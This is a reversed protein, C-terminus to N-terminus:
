SASPTVVSNAGPTGQASSSSLLPSGTSLMRGKIETCTRLSRLFFDLNVEMILLVAELLVMVPMQQIDAVSLTATENDGQISLCGAVVRDLAARLAGDNKLEQLDQMSPMMDPLQQLWTGIAIADDFQAWVLQRVEVSQGSLDKAVARNFLTM